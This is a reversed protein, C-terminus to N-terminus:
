RGARDIERQLAARLRVYHRPRENEFASFLFPRSPMRRTGEHVWWAYHVNTGVVAELTQGSIARPAETSPTASESAQRLLPEADAVTISNQLRGGTYGPIGTSEPTGVPAAIKALRQINLATEVVTSSATRRASRGLAELKRTLEPIGDVRVSV